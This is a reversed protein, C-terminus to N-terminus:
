VVGYIIIKKLIHNPSYFAIYRYIIIFLVNFRVFLLPEIFIFMYVPYIEILLSVAAAPPLKKTRERM